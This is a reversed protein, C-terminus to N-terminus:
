PVGREGATGATTGEHARASSRRYRRWRVGRLRLRVAHWGILVITKMPVVPDRVLASLLNRANLDHERVDIRAYLTAHEGEYERIALILRTGREAVSLEYRADLDIFPSVYMGKRAESRFVEGDDRPSFDYVERDGHTNHVEAIVHVLRGSMARCLYFSVPNFVYGLVRPYAVLTVRLTSPDLGQAALHARMSEAIGLEGQTVHDADRVSLLASREYALLPFMRGLGALEDIDAALYWVDHTFDYTTFRGRRHRVSGRLIRSRPVATSM